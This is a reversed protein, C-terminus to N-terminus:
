QELERLEKDLIRLFDDEDDDGSLYWDIRQAYVYAKRIVSVADRMMSQVEPSYTEYFREEPNNNYFDTSGYMDRKHREKGQRELLDSIENAINEINYQKYDFHGGSM